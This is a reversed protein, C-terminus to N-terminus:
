GCSSHRRGACRPWVTWKVTLRSGSPRRPRTRGTRRPRCTRTTEVGQEPVMVIGSASNLMFDLGATAASSNGALVQYEANEGSLVLWPHGTGENNTAWPEGNAVCDNFVSVECDGYGDGNYRMIGTGSSTPTDITAQVVM